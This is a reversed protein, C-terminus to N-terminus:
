LNFVTRSSHIIQSIQKHSVITVPLLLEEAGLGRSQLSQADVLVNEIGYLELTELANGLTKRGIAEANQNAKLQYVGDDLFVYNVSQEFVSFALAMDLCLQPNHSGYPARRSIFTISPKKSMSKEVKDSASSVIQNRPLM